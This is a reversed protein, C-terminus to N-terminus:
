EATHVGATHNMKGSTPKPNPRKAFQLSPRQARDALLGKVTAVLVSMSAPKNVHVGERCVGVLDDYGSYTVFPIKRQKMRECIASTDGDRLAHDLIAASLAPVEVARLGEALTRAMIVRAGEEEFGQMIEFAILPEDEAILILRGTLSAEM